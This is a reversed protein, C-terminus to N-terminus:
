VAKAPLANREALQTRMHVEDDPNRVGRERESHLLQIHGVAPIEVRAVVAEPLEDPAAISAPSDNVPQDARHM